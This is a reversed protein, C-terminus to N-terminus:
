KQKGSAKKMFTAASPCIDNIPCEGCLPNRAKCIKRGHTILTTHYRFADDPPVLDLLLDHAKDATCSKPLMGIRQSVRFIHTDVPIAGMGFSFCLVISATKPGVGPLEMLWDRAELMSLGQLHDISYSGTRRHIEDLARVISKAKQNALGAQRIIPAVGEAGAAVVSQWEPFQEKLRAFAPFSNADSTHQSLICCVLEDMPSFRSAYPTKGHVEELRTLLEDLERLSKGKRASRRKPKTAAM